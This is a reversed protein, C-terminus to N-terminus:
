RAPHGFELGAEAQAQEFPACARELQGVFAQRQMLAGADQQGLDVFRGLRNGRAGVARTAAQSDAGRQQKRLERHAAQGGAEGQAM